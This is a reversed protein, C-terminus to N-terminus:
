FHFLVRRIQDSLCNNIKPMKANVQNYSKKKSLYFNFMKFFNLVFCNVGRSLYIYIYKGTYISPFVTKLFIAMVM